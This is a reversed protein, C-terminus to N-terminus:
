IRVAGARLRRRRGMRVLDSVVSGIAVVGVASAPIYRLLVGLIVFGFDREVLITVFNWATGRAAGRALNM